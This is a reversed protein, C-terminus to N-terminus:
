TSDGFLRRKAQAAAALNAALRQEAKKPPPTWPQLWPKDASGFFKAPTMVYQPGSVGGAAVYAAYRRAAAELDDWTLGDQDIRLRCHHEATIWDQRGAFKPYARKIREFAARESQPDSRHAIPTKGDEDRARARMCVDPEQKPEPEPEPNPMAKAFAEGFAKQFGETYGKLFAKAAQIAQLKLACEPILDLAGAWAKVVNPSEPGNYRIFNPLWICSAKEDYKAMGKALAERFAERFAEPTWGIEEALGGMTARMAGLATMHPHTLVFLFALKGADSLARFKADNWIRPDVKRYRAM